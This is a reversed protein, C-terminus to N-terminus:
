VGVETSQGTLITMAHKAVLSSFAAVASLDNNELMSQANTRINDPDRSSFLIMGDANAYRAAALMLRALVPGSAVDLELERSWTLAVQPNASLWARLRVFNDSLSRHTILFSGPHVPKEGSLVSWEFQMIPCFRPERRYIDAAAVAKSGVGFSRIKGEKVSRELAEFLEDNLDGVVAEHLLLIDIYDTKMTALSADISIRLEDASFRARSSLGRAAGSLRSKVGPMGRVIPLLLRRAMGLLNQNRPPRIGYKTAITVQDRKSRLAEGVVSEAHGYGYSPATDFHRIGAELATQLLAISERRTIGGMLQSSGYGLHGLALGPVALRIDPSARGESIIEM